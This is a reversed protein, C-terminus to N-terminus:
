LTEITEHLKRSQNSIPPFSSKTLYMNPQFKGPQQIPLDVRFASKFEPDALHASRSTETLWPDHRPLDALVPSM